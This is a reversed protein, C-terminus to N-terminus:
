NNGGMKVRNEEENAGGTKRRPQADKMPKGFRYVFSINVVRSDRSNRFWAETSQFNITGKPIQTYFMDRANLKVTAKGKMIQKAVGASAAGMPDIVIQGEIGRTRYWGSLEASWGKGFKFQNNLNFTLNGGAVDIKEGNLDGSFVSYNYNGYMIATWWKKVPVQASVAVGGNQRVGINGQRVITAYKDEGYEERGQSFTESIYDKTYSYNLTTTLFSKFTHTLEVNNTFQPRLYPNGRAFTFKDIYFLFPNLDQYAPRDIRRGYSIAFENNKDASYGIFVTPFLSGYSRSFASDPRTPNGFQNGKMLTQEYRLGSQLSWKKIKRNYNIYGAIINEKYQFQNTKSYDIQESGDSINFYQALNDTNVYSAKFGTELKAEKKLPQSYDVKASFIDIDVPLYGRLQENSKVSWDPYLISNEFNQQSNSGYTVYDIDATLEKGSSDFQRRFNLNASKNKWFDKNFSTAYIISDVEGLSNKLYGTNEGTQQEPAFNGNLVFGITTKKDLYYDAGVKVNYNKNENKMFSSQEFIATLEKSGADRYKRSIELNQFGNWISYGGNAFLNFKGNRYNMNLSNNTKWYSGQGYNVTANGNFGKQKNKKTKINIIGSNGAADYKASPNTVIEIQDVSSAPMSKLLNTLQDNTLYTPRGDMMVTVGQKGKLSINGDKDITIGPSKELVELVTSGVNTVAADVNVVMKDIKQEIFPKHGTVTVTGLEKATVAMQIVPIEVAPQGDSIILKSSYAKQLGASSAQVLYQGTSIDQFSYSGSKDTAVVKAVSSDKANLLSVTISEAPKKQSDLIKGQIIGTKTQAVSVFSLTTLALTLLTLTKKM